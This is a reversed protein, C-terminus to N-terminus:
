VVMAAACRRTLGARIVLAVVMRARMGTRVEVPLPEPIITGIAMGENPPISKATTAMKRTGTRYQQIWSALILLVGRCYALLLDLFLINLHSEQLMISFSWASSYPWMM